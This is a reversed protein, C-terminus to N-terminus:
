EHRTVVSVYEAIDMGAYGEKVYFLDILTALEDSVFIDWYHGLIGSVQFAKYPINEADFIVKLYYGDKTNKIDTWGIKPAEVNRFYFYDCIEAHAHKYMDIKSQHCRECMEWHPPDANPMDKYVPIM